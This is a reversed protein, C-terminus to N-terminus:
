EPFNGSKVADVYSKFAGAISDQGILFNKNFSPGGGSTIGLMDYSVLVQADCEKGAGIGIVPVSSKSTIELALTSPVCELLLMDAGSECLLIADDIIQKASQKDKGQVRYGSSKHVSQPLLGLHSCVPIGRATLFSVTQQMVSGGEIKVMNAGASMLGAAALYTQELSGCVGFPLDSIIFVSSTNSSVNETHYIMEDLTVGLTSEQGKVVMGLSDGVLLCEVASKEMLQAFSSDYATLCSFKEGQQKKEQFYKITKRL